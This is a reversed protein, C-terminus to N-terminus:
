GKLAAAKELHIPLDIALTQHETEFVRMKLGHYLFGLQELREVRELQTPANNKIAELAQRTYAYIGAHKFLHDSGFPIAHRSFYLARGKKDTVVKVVSSDSKEEEETIKKKLTWVDADDDDDFQLLDDIIKHDIFPEDGQWNVFIDGHLRDLISIIRRTGNELDPDTMMAKGGFHTVLDHTREHDVAFVIDDFQPCNSAAEFIWQLIPKGGLYALVKEKFRSSNLRAPVVCIVKRSGIM